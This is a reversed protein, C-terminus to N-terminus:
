ECLMFKNLLLVKPNTFSKCVHVLRKISSLEIVGHTLPSWGPRLEKCTTYPCEGAVEYFKVFAFDGMGGEAKRGRFILLTRAYWERRSAMIAVDSFWNERPSAKVFAAKEVLEGGRSRPIAVATHVSICSPDVGAARIRGVLGDMDPGVVERYEQFLGDDAVTPTMPKGRKTLRYEQHRVAERLATVYERGGGANAAIERAIERQMDEAVIRRPIDKWNGGRVPGKVTGKHTREWLETSYHHPMGRLPITDINHVISHIKPLQWESSQNPFAAILAEVLQVAQKKVEELSGLTHRQVGLLTKYFEAYLRFALVERERKLRGETDCGVCRDAILMPMVQMMARYEFAAYNAGTRFFSSGGPIRLIVSPTDKKYEKKRRELERLEPKTKGELFCDAMHSPVGSDLVHLIDAVCALYVNGWDTESFNWRELVCEIPHTSWRKKREKALRTTPAELIKRVIFRHEKVTRAGVVFDLDRLHSDRVYCNSCPRHSNQQMTASARSREPSDGVFAFLCFYAKVAIREHARELWMGTAPDSFHRRRSTDTPDAKPKTVFDPNSIFTRVFKRVI